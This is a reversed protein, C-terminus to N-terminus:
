IDSLVVINDTGILYGIGSTIHIFSAWIVDDRGREIM